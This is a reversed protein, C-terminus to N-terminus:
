TRHRTRRNNPSRFQRVTLLSEIDHLIAQVILPAQIFRFEDRYCSNRGGAETNWPLKLMDFGIRANAYHQKCRIRIDKCQEYQEYQEYQKNSSLRARM